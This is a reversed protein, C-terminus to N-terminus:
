PFLTPAAAAEDFTAFRRWRPHQCFVRSLSLCSGVCRVEKGAALAAGAELLAGKLLEGEECYLLTADARAAEDLCRAALDAYSGSQGEEAEDIWTAIINVGAARMARWLPAHVTKSAAYFSVGGPPHDAVM